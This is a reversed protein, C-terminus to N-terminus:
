DTNTLKTRQLFISEGNEDLAELKSALKTVLKSISIIEDPTLDEVMYEAVNESAPNLINFKALGKETLQLIKRRKNHPDTQATLYGKKALSAVARSISMTSIGTGQAIEHSAAQVMRGLSMLVRFEGFSISFQKEIHNNFHSQINNNLRLLRHMMLVPIDHRANEGLSVATRWEEGYLNSLDTPRQLNEPKADTM